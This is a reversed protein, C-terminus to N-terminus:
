KEGKEISQTIESMVGLKILDFYIGLMAENLEKGQVEKITNFAKNVIEIIEVTTYTKEEKKKGLAM